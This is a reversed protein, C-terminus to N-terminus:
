EGATMAKRTARIQNEIGIRRRQAQYLTRQAKEETKISFVDAGAQRAAERINDLVDYARGEMIVAESLMRYLTDLRSLYFEHDPNVLQRSPTIATNKPTERRARDKVYEGHWGCLFLVISAIFIYYCIQNPFVNM